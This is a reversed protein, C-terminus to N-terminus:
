PRLEAIRRLIRVVLGSEFASALNGEVFRDQRVITTLLRQLTEVDAGEVGGPEVLRKAEPLWSPWDFPVVWGHLSLVRLFDLVQTAYEVWPIRIVGNEDKDGGRWDGAEFGPAEFIPLFALVATFGDRAPPPLPVNTVFSECM